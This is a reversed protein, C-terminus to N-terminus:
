LDPGPLPPWDPHCAAGSCTHLVRARERVSRLVEAYAPTGAVNDVQSRSVERDYLEEYVSGSGDDPYRAYTYRADRYGRYLWTSSNPSLAGNQLITAARPAPAGRNTLVARLSVGDLPYAPEAGALQVFTRTLDPTTVLHDVRAGQLVGPGRVLLPVRVSGEYPLRKGVYRHEGLLYGNDSTFVFLTRRLEGPRRLGEVMDAVSRDVAQLSEIRRQFRM